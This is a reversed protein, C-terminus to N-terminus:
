IRGVILDHPRSLSLTGLITQFHSSPDDNSLVFLMQMPRKLHQAARHPDRGRRLPPSLRGFPKTSTPMVVM